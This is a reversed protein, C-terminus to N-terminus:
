ADCGAQAESMATAAATFESTTMAVSAQAIATPDGTATATAMSNYADRLVQLHPKLDDPASQLLTDLATVLQQLSATAVTYDPNEPSLQSLAQAEDLMAGAANKLDACFEGTSEMEDLTVTTDPTPTNTIDVEVAGSCGAFALLGITMIATIRRFM